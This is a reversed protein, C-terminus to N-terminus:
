CPWSIDLLHTRKLHLINLYLSLSILIYHCMSILINECRVLVGFDFSRNTFEGSPPPRVISLRKKKPESGHSDNGSKEKRMDVDHSKDSNMDSEALGRLWSFCICNKFLSIM